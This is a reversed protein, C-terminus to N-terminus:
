KVDRIVKAVQRVQAAAMPANHQDAESAYTEVINLVHSERLFREGNVIVYDMPFHYTKPATDTRLELEVWTPKDESM